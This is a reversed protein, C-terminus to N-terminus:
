RTFLVRQDATAEDYALLVFALWLCLALGLHVVQLWGPASLFVNLAGSALQLVCLVVIPRAM